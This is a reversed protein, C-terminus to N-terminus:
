GINLMQLIKDQEVNGNNLRNKLFNGAICYVQREFEEMSLSGKMGNCTSCLPIYNSISNAGGKSRPIVHDKTVYTSRKNPNHSQLKKGCFACRGDFKNLMQRRTKYDCRGFINNFTDSEIICDVSKLHNEQAVIYDSYGDCLVLNEDLVIKGKLRHTSKFYNRKQTMKKESPPTNSFLKPVVIKELMIKQTDM